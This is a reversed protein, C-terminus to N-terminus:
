VRPTKPTRNVDNILQDLVTIRKDIAKMEAVLSELNEALRLRVRLAIREDDWDITVPRKSAKSM